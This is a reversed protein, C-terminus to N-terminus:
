GQRVGVYNDRNTKATITSYNKKRNQLNIMEVTNKRLDGLQLEHTSANEHDFSTPCTYSTDRKRLFNHLACIALVVYSINEPYIM